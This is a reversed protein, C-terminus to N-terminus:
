DNIQEKISRKNNISEKISKVILRKVETGTIYVFSENDCNSILRAKFPDIGTVPNLTYYVEWEIDGSIFINEILTPPFLAERLQKIACAGDSANAFGVANEVAEDFNKESITRSNM